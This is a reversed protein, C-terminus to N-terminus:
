QKTAVMVASCITSVPFLFIFKTPDKKHQYVAIQIDLGDILGQPKFLAGSSSYDITETKANAKIQLKGILGLEPREYTNAGFAWQSGSLFTNLETQIQATQTNANPDGYPSVCIIDGMTYTAKPLVTELKLISIYENTLTTQLKEMTGMNAELTKQVPSQAYGTMLASCFLLLFLLQKIM